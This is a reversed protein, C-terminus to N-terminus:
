QFYGNVDLIFHVSGASNNIVSITGSGDTALQVIANNARARSLGFSISSTTTATLHGGIVKLEGQAGAGVVTLNSVIVKAGTPVSCKGAVAFVRRSGAALIPPATSRTDLVRCPTISFFRTPVGVLEFTATVARAQTMTVQCTSTGSCGEGSWGAFTSSSGASASLTVVTNYDFSASCTSGCTIGAPSSTVTGGGTGAKSVTLLYTNLTFTATVSRAQSMTVQCTGTGLCGEGSWGTFTSGTDASASLTVTANCGFNTSCTVGCSIGAPSSTVTGAGTGAKTVTLTPVPPNAFVWAAGSYGNDAPGGVIATTGDASLAVSAGQQASGVASSGILKSGQQAWVGESRTFVWAAGILSNDSRGGVIAINGDGSLAVSFGQEASGVAGYGVLKDGQQTWVGGSRTFVWAAGAGGNDGLGGIMATNGDASLAVSFAQGANWGAGTGNLKSGQQTWVGESRTFVWAAGTGSNDNYGGVIATNGDASLAVGGAGQNAAGVAGAGVLKDGQQTWVGGSRTFVWAAGIGNNDYYGGLIATTGDASLDVSVAQGANGVAGTGVLKSGQQTWVGESRTFVWAAGTGYNDQFGGVIATNGDASLAISLGQQPSGVAGSGHLTSGQQTWMGGSRTFVWAAGFDGSGGLAYGGVIATDGDASLAVSAGGTGDLKSGQQIFQACAVVTFTATLSRAQDMTVQCTGTGSCGEGSWGTFTSNSGVSASLTVVTNYDFGTSCTSGCDIGAPSSSVTGGGTGAKSVTLVYTNLTFTATVSRAQDMTVQCTGTGSCDEGSWGTFTSGVGASASLTVDTNYAFFSSCTSGCAIGAPSSSVTGSGTGAKTVTLRRPAQVLTQGTSSWSSNYASGGCSDTARVRYYYTRDSLVTHNFIRNTDTVSYATPSTFSADAAEQLEYTGPPSTASWSVTYDNGSTGSAPATLAPSLPAACSAKKIVVNDIYAGYYSRVLSDSYFNIAIWVSGQGLASVDTIDGFNLVEHVSWPSQSVEFGYFDSGDISLGWYVSDYGAEVDLLMDFDMWADAASALSFPGYVMWTDMNNVYYGGPPQPYTGGAACWASAGGSAAWATSKGWQTGIGSGDYIAWSGPFSGEFGDSFITVVSAALAIEVARCARELNARQMSTWALNIAAQRLVDYLDFYDSAPGLLDTQAEYFLAAVANIGMSSVTQSNFTGGDTLLYALKNGVGSNIHVGQNDIVGGYWYASRRRDPQRLNQPPITCTALPFCPNPPSTPDLMYRSAGGPGDEGMYWRVGPTDTGRGNGLDVFEGFIDSLSENIAGSESWYILDSEYQTVGHTLEHAVVDDAATYGQGFRMESGNWYANGWPCGEDPECYRVRGIMTMGAGNISDRGFHSWYFDYTDGFYDYALDVDTNGTAAQGESRALSGTSGVVNNCDYIQRSKAEMIQSFHFAVQGTRADVLVVEDAPAAESTVRSHWVLRSTGSNGIVSPEYIMLAPETAVLDAVEVALDPVTLALARAADAGVIPKKAFDKEHFRADDRAVDSLVFEVDGEADLQVVVSAGFVPIGDFEQGLHVFQRGNRNKVRESRFGVGESAVGFAEGHLRMFGAAIGGPDDRPGLHAAAFANGPPAGVSRLWGEGTRAARPSEGGDEPKLAMARVRPALSGLVRDVAQERALNVTPASVSSPLKVGAPLRRMMPQRAPAVSAGGRPAAGKPRPTGQTTSDARAAQQQSTPPAAGQLPAGVGLNLILVGVVLLWVVTRRQVIKAEL